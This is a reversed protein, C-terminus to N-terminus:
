IATMRGDCHLSSHVLYTSKCLPDSGGLLDRHLVGGSFSVRVVCVHTQLPTCFRKFVGPPECHLMESLSSVCRALRLEITDATSGRAATSRADRSPKSTSIPTANRPSDRTSASSAVKRMGVAPSASRKSSRDCFVSECLQDLTVSPNAAGGLLRNATAAAPSLPKTVRETINASEAFLKVVPGKASASRIDALSMGRSQIAPSQGTPALGPARAVTIDDYM